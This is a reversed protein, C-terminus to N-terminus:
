AQQPAQSNLLQELIAKGTESIVITSRDRAFLLSGIRVTKGTHKQLHNATREELTRSISGYIQNVWDSGQSQDLERLFNLAQETTECTLIQQLIATELGVKVGQAVFIELRGDALHHHTHFIGGALKILKGHYGLLLISKVGQLGASVLMPSLWNATKVLQSSNIGMKQALDRSNEGICFVLSDFQSAKTALDQQFADLQEPASLPHSIGTTGLLSLGEVVGFASNSTRAALKRGEPLILTIIAQEGSQILPLLNETILRTAYRYIAAKQNHNVLKGIGEGGQLIVPNDDELQAKKLEVRAWVPTNRTLDLNDGPDSRTIALATTENLQAVQEVPITVKEPPELLNLTVGEQDGELASSVQDQRLHQLAALASAAAFVPLTYGSRAQAM